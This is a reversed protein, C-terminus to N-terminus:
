QESGLLYVFEIDVYSQNSELEHQLLISDKFASEFIPYSEETLTYNLDKVVSDHNTEWKYYTGDWFTVSYRIFYSYM